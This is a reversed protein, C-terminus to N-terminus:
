NNLYDKIYDAHKIYNHLAENYNSGLLNFDYELVVPGKYNIKKLYLISKLWQDKNDDNKDLALHSVDHFFNHIHVNTLKTILIEDLDTIQGYEFLEHGLDYTYNLEINNALIPLLFEKSLTIDNFATLNEISVSINLDNYFIYNLINSFYLNTHVLSTNIDNAILPHMVVNIKTGFKLSIIHLYDLYEYQTDLDYDSIGHFQLLYNDNLCYPIINEVFTLHKKNKFDFLIEFGDINNYLDNEEIKSIFYHANKNFFKYNLGLLLKM